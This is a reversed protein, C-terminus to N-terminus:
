DDGIIDEWRARLDEMERWCRAGLEEFREIDERVADLTGHKRGRAKHLVGPATDHRPDEVRGEWGWGEVETLKVAARGHRDASAGWKVRDAARADLAPQPELALWVAATAGRYGDVTHWPSGLWRSIVLALTYAWMLFWPVPFLTSAVIGPHSVYVRPRVPRASAVAADDPTLWRESSPTSGPLSSTLSLVDTLRKASEYAEDRTFCQLDDPDFVDRCAEISSSWIIRGPPLLPGADTSLSSSTEAPRSLLPLLQHVLMYHGFVCAAFVEGLLPKVPYGYEQRENLICTPLSGKFTPWTVSQVIGKTLISWVAGLWDVGSWGGFAANCIVSDIRPVRVGRLDEGAGGQEIPAEAGRPNSVEGHVLRAAFDRVGRLDCLDLTLGLAHVRALTDRPHVYDPGARAALTSAADRNAAYARIDHVAQLCKAPSRATAILILHSTLPRQALFEDILRHAIGLGVGSNSGTILVFLQDHAPVADWPAAGAQSVAAVM